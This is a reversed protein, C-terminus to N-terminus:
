RIKVIKKTVIKQDALVKVFYIGSAFGSSNWVYQGEGPLSNEMVVNEIENGL